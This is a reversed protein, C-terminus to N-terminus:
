CVQKNLLYLIKYVCNNFHKNTKFIFYKSGFTQIVRVQKTTGYLDIVAYLPGRRYPIATACPGFVDGNLLIYMEALNDRVVYTVGIRSGVDAPYMYERLYFM